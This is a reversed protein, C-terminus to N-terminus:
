KELYVKHLDSLKTYLKSFSIYNEVYFCLDIIEWIDKDMENPKTLKEGSNIHLM